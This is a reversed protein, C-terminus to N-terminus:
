KGRGARGNSQRHPAPEDPGIEVKPAPPDPEVYVWPHNAAYLYKRRLESYYAHVKEFQHLYKGKLRGDPEFYWEALRIVPEEKDDWRIGSLKHIMGFSCYKELYYARRQMWVVSALITATAAVALMWRRVTMRPLRM